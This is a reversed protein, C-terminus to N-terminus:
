LAEGGNDESDQVERLPAEVWKGGAWGAPPRSPKTGRDWSFVRKAARESDFANRRKGKGKGSNITSRMDGLPFQESALVRESLHTQSPLDSDSGEFEESPKTNSSDSTNDSQSSSPNEFVNEDPGDEAAAASLPKKKAPAETKRNQDTKVPPGTGAHEEDEEAAGFGYFIKYRECSCWGECECLDFERSKQERALRLLDPDSPEPTAGLESLGSSDGNPEPEHENDAININPSALRNCTRRGGSGIISSRSDPNAENDTSNIAPSASLNQARRRGRSDIVSVCSSPSDEINSLSQSSRRPAVVIDESDYESSSVEKDNLAVAAHTARNAIDEFSSAPISIQDNQPGDGSASPEDKAVAESAQNRLSPDDEDHEDDEGGESAPPGNKLVAAFADDPLPADDEDHEDDDDGEYGREDHGCVQQGDKEGGPNSADGEAERSDALAHEGAAEEGESGDHSSHENSEGTGEDGAVQADAQRAQAVTPQNDDPSNARVTPPSSKISAPRSGKENDSGSLDSGSSISMSASGASSFDDAMDDRQAVSPFFQRHSSSSSSINKILRLHTGTAHSTQLPQREHVLRLSRSHFDKERRCDRLALSKSHTQNHRLKNGTKAACALWLSQENYLVLRGFKSSVHNAPHATNSM